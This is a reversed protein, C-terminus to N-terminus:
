IFSDTNNLIYNFNFGFSFPNIDCVEEDTEKGIMKSRERHVALSSRNVMAKSQTVSNFHITRTPQKISRENRKKREIEDLQMQRAVSVKKTQRKKGPTKRMGNTPTVLSILPTSEPISSEIRHGNLAKQFGPPIRASTFDDESTNVISNREFVHDSLSQILSPDHMQNQIDEDKDDNLSSTGIIIEDTTCERELHQHNKSKNKQRQRRKKSNSIHSENLHITAKDIGKENNDVSFGFIFKAERKNTDNPKVKEATTSTLTPEGKNDGKTIDDTKKSLSAVDTKLTIAKTDTDGTDSMINLNVRAVKQIPKKKFYSALSM